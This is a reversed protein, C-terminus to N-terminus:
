GRCRWLHQLGLGQMVMSSGAFYCDLIAPIYCGGLLVAFEKHVRLNERALGKGNV